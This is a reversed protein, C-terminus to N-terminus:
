IIDAMIDPAAVGALTITGGDLQIVTGAETVAVSQVAQTGRLEIRDVHLLYAEIVDNGPTAGFVFVNAGGGAKLYDDGLNGFLRDNGNGGVLTDAGQGGYLASADNGCSILDEGLNGYIADNGGTGVVTDNGQGGFLADTTSDDAGDRILDNGINGYLVDNGGGGDMRDDGGRAAVVDDQPSGTIIDSSSFLWDLVGDATGTTILGYVAAASMSLKDMVYYTAGDRKYEISQLSGTVTEGEEGLDSVQFTGGFIVTEGYENYCTIQESGYFTEAAQLNTFNFTTIDTPRKFIIEPM